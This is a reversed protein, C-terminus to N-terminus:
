TFTPVLTHRRNCHGALWSPAAKVRLSLCAVSLVCAKTYLSIFVFLCPCTGGIIYFVTVYTSYGKPLVLFRFLVWYFAKFAKLEKHIVWSRRPHLLPNSPCPSALAQIAPRLKVRTHARQLCVRTGCTMSQSASCPSDAIPRMEGWLQTSSSESCRRHPECSVVATTIWAQCVAPASCDRAPHMHGRHAEERGRSPWVVCEQLLHTVAHMGM